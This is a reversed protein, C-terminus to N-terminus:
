FCFCRVELLCTSASLLYGQFFAFFCFLVPVMLIWLTSTSWVIAAVFTRFLILFAGGPIKSMLAIWHEWMTVDGRLLIECSKAALQLGSLTQQQLLSVLYENILFNLSFKRILPQNMWGRLLALRANGQSRAHSIADDVDRANVVVVDFSSCVIMVPAYPIGGTRKYMATTSTTATPSRNIDPHHFADSKCLVRDISWQQYMELRSDKSSQLNFSSSSSSPSIRGSLELLESRDDRRPTTYSSLLSFESTSVSGIIVNPPYLLPLADSSEITGKSRSIIQLEVSPPAFSTRPETLGAHDNNNSVNIDSRQQGLSNNNDNVDDDNLEPIVLGLVAVHDTDMPAVGCAVCDLEWAMVCDVTRKRLPQQQQQIPANVISTHLDTSLSTSPAFPFSDASPVNTTGGSTSTTTASYEEDIIKLNMLCDGWGILISTSSEWCLNCKLNSIAPHYLSARAGTPRDIHALRTMIEVDFVKIGTVDVWVVLNGRWSVVEIGCTTTTVNTIVRTSTSGDDSATCSNVSSNAPTTGSATATTTTTSSTDAVRGQYIVSDITPKTWGSFLGGMISKTAGSTVAASVLNLNKKTLIVRGDTFGCILQKERKRSYAPDVALCTPTSSLGYSYRFPPSISSISSSSSLLKPGYQSLVQASYNRLTEKSTKSQQPQGINSATSSSAKTTTTSNSISTTTTETASPTSKSSVVSEAPIWKLEWIAVSGNRQSAALTSAFADFSLSTISNLMTTTNTSTTKTKTTTTTTTTDVTLIPCLDLGTRIDVIQVTGDLFGLALIDYTRKTNNIIVKGMTSSTCVKILYQQQQTNTNDATPSNRPLSGVLRAYKLLPMEKEELFSISSSSSSTEENEEEERYELGEVETTSSSSSSSSSTTASQLTPAEIVDAKTNTEIRGSRDGNSSSSIPIIQQKSKATILLEEEDEKKSSM